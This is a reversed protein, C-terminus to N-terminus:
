FSLPPLVFGAKDPMDQTIESTTGTMGNGLAAQSMSQGSSQNNQRMNELETIIKVQDAIIKFSTEKLKKMEFNLYFLFVVVCICVATTIVAIKQFFANHKSQDFIDKNTEEVTDM